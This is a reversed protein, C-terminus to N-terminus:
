DSPFTFNGSIERVNKKQLIENKGRFMVSNGSLEESKFFFILDLQCKGSTYSGQKHHFAIVTSMYLCTTTAKTTKHSEGINRNFRCTHNALLHISFFQIIVPHSVFYQLVM